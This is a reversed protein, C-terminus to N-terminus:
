DQENRNAKRRRALLATAGISMLGLTAPEPVVFTLLPPRASERSGFQLDNFPGGSQNEVYLGGNTAPADIWGQVYAAPLTWSVYGDDAPSLYHVTQQDVIAGPVLTANNANVTAENWTGSINKLAILRDPIGPGFNTGQVYMSLTAPGQITQGAYASLDFRVLTATYVPNPSGVNPSIVYLSTDPGHNSGAGGLGPHITIFTDAVPVLTVASARASILLVALLAVASRCVVSMQISHM